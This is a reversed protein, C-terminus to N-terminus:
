AGHGHSAVADRIRNVLIYDSVDHVGRRVMDPSCPAVGAAIRAIETPDLVLHTSGTDSTFIGFGAVFKPSPAAVEAEAPPFPPPAALVDDLPLAMQGPVHESV